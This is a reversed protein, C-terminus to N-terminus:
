KYSLKEMNATTQKTREVSLCYSSVESGLCNPGIWALVSQCQNPPDSSDPCKPVISSTDLLCNPSFHQVTWRWSGFEKARHVV